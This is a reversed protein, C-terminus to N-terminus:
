CHNERLYTLIEYLVQCDLKNYKIIENLLNKNRYKYYEIAVGMSQKGDQIDCDYKSKIMKHEHMAKSISKLKYNFCNKITIPEIKFIKHMDVLTVMSTKKRNNWNSFINDFKVDAQKLNTEEAHTWHFLRPKIKKKSNKNVKKTINEIYLMFDNIIKKENEDSLSDQIFYEFHFKNNVVHGVGIMYLITKNTSNFIDINANLCSNVTEFDIYFDLETTKKWNHFNSKIKEPTIIQTNDRHLKLMKDIVTKKLKNKIGLNKSLCKPDDFNYIGNKLGINRNNLSVGYILTPEKNILALKEKINQMRSDICMNPRLEDRVPDLPSWKYGNKRVDRAWNVAEATKKIIDKDENNFSVTGMLNDFRTGNTKSSICKWSKGMIYAKEPIYGQLNGLALNYIALQSKNASMLPNNKIHIKDARLDMNSWKIDIVVYHYNNKGKNGGGL